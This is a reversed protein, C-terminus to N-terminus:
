IQDLIQKWLNLIRNKRETLGTQQSYSGQDIMESLHEFSDYLNVGPMWEEDYWDCKSSWYEFSEVSNWNAIDPISKNTFPQRQLPRQNDIQQWSMENMIKDPFKFKLEKLFSHSPFFLPMGANYQEFCSMISNHYPIHIIGKYSYIEEWSKGSYGSALELGKIKPLEFRNQTSYIHKNLSPKYKASVYDCLSPILKWSCDTLIENYEKDVRNNALPIIKGAEINAKLFNYFSASYEPSFHFPVDSRIPTQVIIPKNFFSYILSFSTPYFCVFGDYTELVDKYREAFKYAMNHNFKYWSKNNLIDPERQEWGMLPAARSISWVDLSHGLSEFISKIDNIGIHCDIAFFRM